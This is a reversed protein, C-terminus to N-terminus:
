RSDPDRSSCFGRADQKCLCKLRQQVWSSPMTASRIGKKPFLFSLSPSVLAASHSSTELLWLHKFPATPGWTKAGLVRLNWDQMLPGVEHVCHEEAPDVSWAVKSEADAQLALCTVAKPGVASSHGCSLTM